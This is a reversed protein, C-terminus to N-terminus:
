IVDASRVAHAISLAERAPEIAHVRFLAAGGVYATVCAAATALDREAVGRGTVAGLFRKRSPGVMVPYGLDSLASLDRLLELNQGPTKAFGLGPDLVIRERRVGGADAREVAEL